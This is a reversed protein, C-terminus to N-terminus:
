DPQSLRQLSYILATPEIGLLLLCKSKEEADVCNQPVGLDRGRDSARESPTFSVVQM